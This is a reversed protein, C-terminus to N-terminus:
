HRPPLILNEAFLLLIHETVGSSTIQLIRYIYISRLCEPISATTFRGFCGNYRGMVRAASKEQVDYILITEERFVFGM